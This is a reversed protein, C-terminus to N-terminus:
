QLILIFSHFYYIQCLCHFYPTIGFSAKLLEVVKSDTETPLLVFFFNFFSKRSRSSARNGAKSEGTVALSPLHLIYGTLSAVTYRKLGKQLSRSVKEVTVTGVHSSPVSMGVWLHAVVSGGRCVVLAGGTRSRTEM